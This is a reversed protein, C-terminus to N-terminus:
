LSEKKACRTTGLCNLPEQLGSSLKCLLTLTGNAVAEGELLLALAVLVISWYEGCHEGRREVITVPCCGAVFM